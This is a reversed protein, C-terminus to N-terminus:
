GTRRTERGREQLYPKDSVSINNVHSNFRLLTILLGDVSVWLQNKQPCILFIHWYKSTQDFFFFYCCKELAVNWVAETARISWSTNLFDRTQDGSPRTVNKRPSQENDRRKLLPSITFAEMQRDPGDMQWAIEEQWRVQLSLIPIQSHHAMSQAIGHVIKELWERGEM